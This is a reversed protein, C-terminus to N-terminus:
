SLVWYLILFSLLILSITTLFQKWDRDRKKTGFEAELARDYDHDLAEQYTDDSWGTEWDSGCDRCFNVDEELAAGCFPCVWDSDKM